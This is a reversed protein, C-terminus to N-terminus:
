AVEVIPEEWGLTIALESMTEGDEDLTVDEDNEMMAQAVKKM